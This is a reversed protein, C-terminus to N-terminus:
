DCEELIIDLPNPILDKTAGTMADTGLGIIGGMLINGAMDVARVAVFYEMNKQLTLGTITESHLTLGDNTVSDALTDVM